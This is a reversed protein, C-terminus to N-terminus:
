GGDCLQLVQQQLVGLVFINQFQESQSLEHAFVECTGPLCVFLDGADIRAVDLGPDILRLASDCPSYLFATFNEASSQLFVSLTCLRVVVHSDGLLRHIEVGHCNRGVLFCNFELRIQDFGVQIQPVNVDVHLVHAERELTELCRQFM